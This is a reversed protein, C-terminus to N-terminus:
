RPTAPDWPKVEVYNSKLYSERLGPTVSCLMRYDCGGYKGCSSLNMPFHQEKTASQILEITYFTGDLWENIQDKTHLVPHREFRSFGAAIQAADIIGGRIPQALITEGAWTYGLFQNTPKYNDYFWPGLTKSTTKQDMWMTTGGYTILRDLHGCYMLDPALPLMFSLEVAPRGDSLHVTQIGDASEEAFQDVYWVITRMLNMRTKAADNFSIPAGGPIRNGEDDLDHKWSHLMAFRITALLATDIDMGEARFKYFRELASAYIGGFVLHVSTEVPVVSRIMRYYYARPCTQAIELSTGDWAVQIGDRFSKRTM